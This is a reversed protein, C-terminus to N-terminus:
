WSIIKSVEAPVVKNQWERRHTAKIRDKTRYVHLCFHDPFIAKGGSNLDLESQQTQTLDSTPASFLQNEGWGEEAM